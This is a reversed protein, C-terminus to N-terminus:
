LLLVLETWPRLPLTSELILLRNIYLMSALTRTYNQQRRLRNVAKDIGM